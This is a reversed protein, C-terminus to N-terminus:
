MGQQKILLLRLLKWSERGFDLLFKTVESFDLPGFYRMSGVVDVIRGKGLQPLEAQCFTAVCAPFFAVLVLTVWESIEDQSIVNYFYHPIFIGISYISIM